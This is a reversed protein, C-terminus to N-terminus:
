IKMAAFNIDLLDVVLKKSSHRSQKSRIIFYFNKQKPTFAPNGSHDDMINWSMGDEGKGSM